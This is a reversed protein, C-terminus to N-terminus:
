LKKFTEEPCEIVIKLILFSIFNYCVQFIMLNLKILYILLSLLNIKIHWCRQYTLLNAPIYLFSLLVSYSLFPVIFLVKYYKIANKMKWNWFNMTLLMVIKDKKRKEVNQSHFYTVIIFSHWNMKELDTNSLM